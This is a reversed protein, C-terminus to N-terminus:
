WRRLTPGASTTSISIASSPGAVLRATPCGDLRSAEGTCQIFTDRVYWSYFDIVLVDLPIKRAAFGEAIDVLEDSSRYRMKSQWFGMRDDPLLPAHGTADAYRAMLSAYPDPDSPPAATVWFDAAPLGLTLACCRTWLGSVLMLPPQASTTEGIQRQAESTWNTVSPQSDFQGEGPANWLFGYRLCSVYFPVAIQYKTM